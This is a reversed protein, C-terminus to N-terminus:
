FSYMPSPLPESPEVICNKKERKKLNEERNVCIAVDFDCVNQGIFQNRRVVTVDGM